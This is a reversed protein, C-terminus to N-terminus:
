GAGILVAAAGTPQQEGRPTHKSGHTRTAQRALLRATARSKLQQWRECSMCGTASDSTLSFTLVAQADRHYDHARSHRLLLVKEVPGSAVMQLARCLEAGDITCSAHTALRLLSWGAGPLVAADAPPWVM